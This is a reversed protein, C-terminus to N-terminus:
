FLSIAQGRRRTCPSPLSRKGPRHRRLPVRRRADPRSIPAEGQHKAITRMTRLAAPTLTRASPHGNERLFSMYARVSRGGWIGDVPGPEYGSAALLKQAERLARVPPAGSAWAGPPPAEAKPEESRPAEVKPQESPPAEVKPEETPLAQAKPEESPPAEAKPATSGPAERGAAIDTAEGQHKAITRMTRLAAPTLTRASPHGNERLFSMYARVSRGGWIGDVPGPEYGSAALLKQAERLARVPPAGSAWAGPPPAEAKPEESRPAEVKPQESPPAEVKPEETPLAQAKPEESPPAQAKPATSGPAERGAAIDTAEGQHKAITRMTRLAAPTLTRASPHGNERLFSMYARVSRGGWIGDVPGPEYGSAALLKQAERLARVPPAGSAWAGPPPAEAKPEESRPAEVKPQESPPAEVKPEETPLAQAKPEESPPAQAKPQESSPAEVKPEEAPLAQAKPQESPPAEAKPATSGPAERGAAIDTAEGQHKAITRMTRLAAPTLTRASPHGNERLFSMYARVSRGGWIGDVPGPEYGSAALLKQAERLARVPPAGSAWAGPPPAEAKPEESRPAEVKPQEAPLAEAKPEEAPPRDGPRWSSAMRHADAREAATLSAALADRELLAEVDGRSAALNFWMHALVYSQPAGLGKLYLRALALMARRDEGDAAAQWQELADAYRGAKWAQRGDAYDARAPLVAVLGLVLALSVARVVHGM